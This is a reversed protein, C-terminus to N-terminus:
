SDELYCGDGRVIVPIEADRDSSMRTFHLWLHDRAATQLESPSMTTAPISV